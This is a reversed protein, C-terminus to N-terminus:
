KVDWLFSKKLLMNHLMFVETKDDGLKDILKHGLLVVYKGEYPAVVLVPFARLDEANSLDLLKDQDKHIDAKSIKIKNGTRATRVLMEGSYYKGKFVVYHERPPGSYVEPEEVPRQYLAPREAGRNSYGNYPRDPQRRAPAGYPREQSDYARTSNPKNGYM